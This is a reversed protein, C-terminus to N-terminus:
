SQKPQWEDFETILTLQAGVGEIPRALAVVFVGMMECRSIANGPFRDQLEPYHLQSFQAGGKADVSIGTAMQAASKEIEQMVSKGDCLTVSHYIERSGPTREKNATTKYEVKRAALAAQLKYAFTISAKRALETANM